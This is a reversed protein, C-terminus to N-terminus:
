YLINAGFEYGVIKLPILKYIINKLKQIKM